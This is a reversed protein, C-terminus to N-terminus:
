LLESQPESIYVYQIVRPEYMIKLICKRTPLIHDCENKCVEELMHLRQDLVFFGCDNGPPHPAVILACTILHKFIFYLYVSCILASLVKQFVPCVRNTLRWILTNQYQYHLLTDYVWSNQIKNSLSISKRKTVDINILKSHTVKISPLRITHKRPMNPSLYSDGPLTNNNVTM